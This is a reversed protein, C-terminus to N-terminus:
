VVVDKRWSLPQIDSWTILSKCCVSLAHLISTAFNYFIFFFHGCVRASNSWRFYCLPPASSRLLHSAILNLLCKLFFEPAWFGCWFQCFCPLQHYEWFDAPLFLFDKKDNSCRKMWQNLSPAIIGVMGITERLECAIFVNNKYNFIVMLFGIMLTWAATDAIRCVKWALILWNLAQFIFISRFNRIFFM